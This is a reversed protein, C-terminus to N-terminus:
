AQHGLSITKDLSLSALKDLLALADADIWEAFDAQARRWLPLAAELTTRGKETLAVVRAREDHGVNMKILSQKELVRLNRGLTSRELGVKRALESISIDEAEDIRRLLRFM